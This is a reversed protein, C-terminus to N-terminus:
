ADLPTLYEISLPPKVGPNLSIWHALQKNNCEPNVVHPKMTPHERCRNVFEIVSPITNALDLAEWGHKWPSNELLVLRELLPYCHFDMYMPDDGGFFKNGKL